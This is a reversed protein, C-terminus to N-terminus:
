RTPADAPFYSRRSRTTASRTRAAGGSEYVIIANMTVPGVRPACTAILHALAVPVIMLRLARAMRGLAGHQIRSVRKASIGLRHSLELQTLGLLYVGAIM